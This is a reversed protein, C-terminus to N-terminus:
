LFKYFGLRSWRGRSSRLSDVLVSTQTPIASFPTTFLGRWIMPSIVSLHPSSPAPVSRTLCWLFIKRFNVCNGLTEFSSSYGAQSTFGICPLHLVELQVRHLFRGLHCYTLGMDNPERLLVIRPHRKQIGVSQQQCQGNGVVPYV